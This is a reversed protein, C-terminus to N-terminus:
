RPPIPEAFTVWFGNIDRVIFERMGYFTDHVGEQVAVRDKLQEFLDDVHETNVYLDVERRDAPSLKGGASFMVSGDGFSLLAWDIKGEDENTRVLTFGVSKYWEITASVDPVHLIPRVRAAM